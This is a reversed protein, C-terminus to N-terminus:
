EYVNVASGGDVIEIYLPSYYNGVEYAHIYEPFRDGGGIWPNNHIRVFDEDIFYRRNRFWFSPKFDNEENHEDEVCEIEIPEPTLKVFGYVTEVKELVM